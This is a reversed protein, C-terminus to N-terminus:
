PAIATISRSTAGACQAELAIGTATFTVSQGSTAALPIEISMQETGCAWMGYRQDSGTQGLSTEVRVGPYNLFLPAHNRVTVALQAPEGPRWASVSLDVIELAAITDCGWLGSRQEQPMCSGAPAADERPPAARVEESSPLQSPPIPGPVGVTGQGCAVLVLMMAM